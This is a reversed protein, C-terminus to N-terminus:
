EGRRPEVAELVAKKRVHVGEACVAAPEGAEEAAAGEVDVEVRGTAYRQVPLQQPVGADRLVDDHDAATVVELDPVARRVCGILGVKRVLDGLDRLAKAMRRSM